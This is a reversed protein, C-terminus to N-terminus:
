RRVESCGKAVEQLGEFSITDKFSRDRHIKPMQPFQLAFYRANAPKDFSADMLEVSFPTNSYSRLNSIGGQILDWTLSLYPIPLHYKDSIAMITLIINERSISHQDIMDIIRLRPKLRVEDKNKLCGIYFLTWWLKGIGIM